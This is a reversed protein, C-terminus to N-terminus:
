RWPIPWGSVSLNQLSCELKNQQRRIGVTRTDYTDPSDISGMRTRMMFWGIWDTGVKGNLGM